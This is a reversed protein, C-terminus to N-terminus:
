GRESFASTAAKASIDTCPTEVDAQLVPTKAADLADDGAIV